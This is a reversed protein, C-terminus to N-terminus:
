TRMNRRRRWLWALLVLGFPTSWSPPARGFSVSCIYCTNTTSNCSGIACDSITTCSTKCAAGGCKYLGCPVTGKDVCKGAGDCTDAYHALYYTTNAPNPGCTPAGCVTGAVWRRCGGKGNCTGDLGCSSKPSQSCNNDPDFGASVNACIGDNGAGKKAASCARCTGTCASDCCVGDVCHGSQCETNGSCTLGNAKAGQCTKNVCLSTGDCQTADSCSTLCTSQGCLYPSCSATGASLCKGTGDCVKPLTLTSGSCTAPACVANSTYKRCGGLGDCQGDSGCSAPGEDPCHNKPDTGALTPACEGNKGTTLVGACARCPSTCDSLCCFGDVCFGSLCTKALTCSAGTTLKKKCQNLIVDCTEDANCDLDKECDGECLKGSCKGTKCAIQNLSQCTGKGDCANPLTKLGGNCTPDSCRTGAAHLQCQGKGDCKGNRACTTPAQEACDDRPDTGAKAPGCVGDKEGDEKASATCAQCPATCSTNCCVGAVCYGSQCSGNKSCLAGNPLVGSDAGADSGGTGSSDTSADKTGKLDDLSNSVSCSWIVVLAVLVTLRRAWM